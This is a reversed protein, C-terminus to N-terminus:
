QQEVTRKFVVGEFQFSVGSVALCTAVLVVIWQETQGFYILSDGIKLIMIASVYCFGALIFQSPSVETRYETM